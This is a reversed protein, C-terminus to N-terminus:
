RGVDGGIRFAVLEAGRLQAVPEVIAALDCDLDEFEEVPVADRQAAAVQPADVPMPEIQKAPRRLACVTRSSFRGRHPTRVEFGPLVALRDKTPEVGERKRWM